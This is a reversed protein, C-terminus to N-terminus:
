VIYRWFGEPTKEVKGERQMFQLRRTIWPATRRTFLTGIEKNSFTTKGHSKWDELITEFEAVAAATDEPDTNLNNARRPTPTVNTPQNPSLDIAAIDDLSLVQTDEAVPWDKTDVHYGRNRRMEQWATTGAEVEARYKAYAPGLATATVEDMANEPYSDVERELKDIDIWDTVLQHAALRQDIGAAELYFHGPFRDQWLHPAAGSQRAYESLGFEADRKAKVGFCMNAGLNYRASTKLRDGTAKQLSIVDVIGASRAAELLGILDEVKAFRAAEELHFILLNLGCGPQWDSLGMRTLHNTRAEIANMVGEIQAMCDDETWAFWALKSALPGGTQMGKAPDGFIVNVDRRALVTGYIAQWAKSKGTGSMGVTLFHQSSGGDKGAIFIEGRQGTDYTAFGVPEVISAGPLEPGDWVRKEKFPDDDLIMIDVQGEIGSDTESVHVLRRPKGAIQALDVIKNKADEISKGIGLKMRYVAGNSTAYSKEAVLHTGQGLGIAAFVNEKADGNEDFLAPDERFAWRRICWSLGIVAGGYAYAYVTPVGFMWEGMDQWVSMILWAHILVTTVTAHIAIFHHFKDRPRFLKYALASLVICSFVMIWTAMKTSHEAPVDNWTYQAYIGLRTIVALVFILGAGILMAIYPLAKGFLAYEDEYRTVNINRTSM